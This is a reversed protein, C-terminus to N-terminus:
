LKHFIQIEKILNQYEEPAEYKDLIWDYIAGDDENLFKEFLELNEFDKLKAKAFQGILFDTEKCGRYNSRYLLKKRLDENNM